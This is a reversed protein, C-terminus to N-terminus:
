RLQCAGTGEGKGPQFLLKRQRQRNRLGCEMDKGGFVGGLEDPDEPFDEYERNEEMWQKVDAKLMELYTM